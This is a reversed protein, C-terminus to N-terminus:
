PGFASRPIKREVSPPRVKSLTRYRSSYELPLSTRMSGDFGCVTYAVSQCCCCDYMSPPPKPPAPLPMKLDVSPPVVHFGSVSPKGRTTCAFRAMEGLLGLM